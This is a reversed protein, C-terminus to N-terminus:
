IGRGMRLKLANLKDTDPAINWTKIGKEKLMKTYYNTLNKYEGSTKNSKLLIHNDQIKIDKLADEAIVADTSDLISFFTFVNTNLTQELSAGCLMM